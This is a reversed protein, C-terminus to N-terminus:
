NVFYDTLIKQWDEKPSSGIISAGIGKLCEQTNVVYLAFKKDKPLILNMEENTPKAGHINWTVVYTLLIESQTYSNNKLIDGIYSWNKPILELHNNM